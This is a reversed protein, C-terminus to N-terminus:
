DYFCEATGNSKVGCNYMDMKGCYAGLGNWTNSSSCIVNYDYSHNADGDGRSPNFFDVCYMEDDILGCAQVVASTASIGSYLAIDGDTRLSFEHEGRAEDFTDYLTACAGSASSCGSSGNWGYYKWTISEKIDFYVYCYVTKNTTVGVKHTEDNYSLVGDIKYGRDDICESKESNFTYGETPFTTSESATYSDSGAEDQLMIAFGKKNSVNEKVIVDDLKVEEKKNDLLIYISLLIFIIPIVYVIKSLAQKNIFGM